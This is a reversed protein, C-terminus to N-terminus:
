RETALDLRSPLQGIAFAASHQHLLENRTTLVAQQDNAAPHNSRDAALDDRNAAIALRADGLQDLGLEVGIRAAARLFLKRQVRNQEVVVRDHAHFECALPQVAIRDGSGTNLDHDLAGTVHHHIHGVLHVRIHSCGSHEGSPHDPEINGADIQYGLVDRFREGLLATRDDFDVGAGAQQHM